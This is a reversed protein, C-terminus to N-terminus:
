GGKPPRLPTITAGGASAAARKVEALERALAANQRRQADLEQEVRALEAADERAVELRIALEARQVEAQVAERQLQALQVAQADSRFRQKDLEDHIAKLHQAEREIRRGENAARRAYLGVVATLLTLAGGVWGAGGLDSM